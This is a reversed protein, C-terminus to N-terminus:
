QEAEPAMVMFTTSRHVLGSAGKQVDDGVLVVVQIERVGVDPSMNVWAGAIARSAAPATTRATM